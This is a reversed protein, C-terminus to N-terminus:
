VAEGWSPGTEVDVRQPVLDSNLAVAMMNGAKRAEEISSFSGDLEDHVQIQIFYGEKYTNIVAQKTQEASQAQILRNLAKHTWDYSGDDKQPFHMRRGM